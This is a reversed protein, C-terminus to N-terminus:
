RAGAIRLVELLDPECPFYQHIYVVDVFRELDHLYSSVIGVQGGNVLEEHPDEVVGGLFTSFFHLLDEFLISLLFRGSNGLRRLWGWRLWDGRWGWRRHFFGFRFGFRLMM